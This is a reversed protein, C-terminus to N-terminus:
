GIGVNEHSVETWKWVKQHIRWSKEKEVIIVREMKHTKRRIQQISQTREAEEKEIKIKADRVGENWAINQTKRKIKLWHKSDWFLEETFGFSTTPM